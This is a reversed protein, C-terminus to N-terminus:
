SNLCSVCKVVADYNKEGNRCAEYIEGFGGIGISSGIRWQGKALDTLITGEKLKEPMAYLKGKAKKAPAAKPKVARPMNHIITDFIIILFFM